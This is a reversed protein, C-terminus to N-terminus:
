TNRRDHNVLCRLGAAMVLVEVCVLWWLVGAHVSILGFWLTTILTLLMAAAVIAFVWAATLM